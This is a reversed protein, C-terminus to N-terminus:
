TPRHIATARRLRALVQAWLEAVEKGVLLSVRRASVIARGAVTLILRRARGLGLSPGVKDIRAKAALRRLCHLLNYALASLRLTAANVQFPTDNEAAVRQGDRHSSSLGASITHVWEGLRAEMTGRQRYFNLVQRGTTPEDSTVLFFSHLFLDEPREQVVLVVRRARSWRNAKYRLVHTWERPKRPRRGPPRVLYEAALKNLRSNNQLRFAYGIGREELMSLLEDSPFGADGRVRGVKEGASELRDVVDILLQKAGTSTSENGPRLKAALIEGTGDMVVQPHFCRYRYHGNYASGGQVGHAALPFSDIDITRPKRAVECLGFGAVASEVIAGDLAERGPGTALLRMLRSVTPQSPLAKDLPSLGRRSCVALRLAPDERLRDADSQTEYGLALMFVRLRLIEELRYRSGRHLHALNAALGASVGLADDLERLVLSGGDATLRLGRGLARVSGNFEFRCDITESDGM